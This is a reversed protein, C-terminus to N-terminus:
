HAMPTPKADARSSASAKDQSIDFVPGGMYSFVMLGMSNAILVHHARLFDAGLLMRPQSLDHTQSGLRTGTEEMKNYKWMESVILKANKITEDGLTFTKFTAVQAAVRRAGIGGIEDTASAQALNVGATAAAGPTVISQTAGSDIEAPIAHGNLLVTVLIASDESGDSELRTQSYPKNWYALEGAACGVVKEVRVENDPLDIELDRKGILERGILAVAHNDLSPMNLVTMVEHPFRSQGLELDFHGFTTYVQGGIGESTVQTSLDLKVGLKRADAIPMSSAWAGTDLIFVVPKGNVAGKALARYPNAQLPLDALVGIQCAANATTAALLLATAAVAALCGRM